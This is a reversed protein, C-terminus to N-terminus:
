KNDIDEWQIDTVQQETATTTKTSGDPNVTHATETTETFEVYEGVEPDIKKKPTAQPTDARRQDQRPTSFSRFKKSVYRRLLWPALYFWALIALLLIIFFTM